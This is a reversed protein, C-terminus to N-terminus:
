WFSSQLKKRLICLSKSNRSHATWHRSKTHSLYDKQYVEAVFYVCNWSCTPIKRKPIDNLVQNEKALFDTLIIMRRIIFIQKVFILNLGGTRNRHICYSKTKFGLANHTIKESFLKSAFSSLMHLLMLAWLSRYLSSLRGLLSWTHNQARVTGATDWSGRPWHHGYVSNKTHIM